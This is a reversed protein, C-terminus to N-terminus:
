RCSIKTVGLQRLEVDVEDTLAEGDGRRCAHLELVPAGEERDVRDRGRLGVLRELDDQGM